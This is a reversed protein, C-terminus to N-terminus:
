RPDALPRRVCSGLPRPRAPARDTGGRRGRADRRRALRRPLLRLRAPASQPDRDATYCTHLLAPPQETGIATLAELYPQPFLYHGCPPLFNIAGRAVREAWLPVKGLATEMAVIARVEEDTTLDIGYEASRGWGANFPTYWWCQSTVTREYAEQTWEQQDTM